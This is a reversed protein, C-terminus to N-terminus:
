EYKKEAVSIDSEGLRDDIARILANRKKNFLQASEAAEFRKNPPLTENMIDNQAFWCRMNIVTLEDILQGLSKRSIDMM